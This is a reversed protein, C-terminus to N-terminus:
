HGFIRAFERDNVAAAAQYEALETRYKEGIKTLLWGDFRNARDKYDNVVEVIKVAPAQGKIWTKVRASDWEWELLPETDLIITFVMPKNGFLTQSRSVPLLHHTIHNRLGELFRVSDADFVRRVEESYARTLEGDESFHEAMFVRLLDVRTKVALVVNHLLREWESLMADHKGPTRRDLIPLAVSPDQMSDILANFDRMNGQLIYSYRKVMSMLALARFGPSARLQRQMEILDPGRADAQGPPDGQVGEPEAM